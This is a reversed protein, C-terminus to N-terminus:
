LTNKKKKPFITAKETKYESYTKNRAPLSTQDIVTIECSLRKWINQDM